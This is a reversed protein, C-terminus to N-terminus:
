FELAKRWVRRHKLVQELQVAIQDVTLIYLQWGDPM